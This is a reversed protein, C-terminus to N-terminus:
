PWTPLWMWHQFSQPDALAQSSLIPYFYGFLAIALIVFWEDLRRKAAWAFHDFAGALALSLFISSPYYYYFFGLSKPIVIFIALGAIWLGAVGLLRWSGDRWWGYLCALVALLGGWVVAPNGIMLVGRQAGDVREYLYWVPRIDLPWSWWSSQYTHPPLVQTQEAYMRAQFPILRALPLPDHAYCLAPTFTALYTLISVVGLILLAPLMALGPWHPQDRGYLASELDRKAVRADRLRILIFALGAFGLFPLATWKAGMALGLLLAALTLKARVGNPGRMAWLMAAVALVLFAAMFGDLMAIRAQIFVTFDVITLLAAIVAPRLKGFTLWGIAFVGMVVASAAITSAIRWGFPTDGFLRIGLGILEKGVLPHEINVPRDLAWLTKAAPVYYIEDFMQKHPFALRFLFLLEAALGILLAVLLPRPKPTAANM